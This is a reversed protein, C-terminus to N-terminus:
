IPENTTHDDTDTRPYANGGTAAAATLKDDAYTHNLHSTTHKMPGATGSTPLTHHEVHELTRGVTLKIGQTTLATLILSSSCLRSSKLFYIYLIHQIYM